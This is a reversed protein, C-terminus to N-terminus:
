VLDKGGKWSGCIGAFEGRAAGYSCTAVILVVEACVVAHLLWWLAAGVCSSLM